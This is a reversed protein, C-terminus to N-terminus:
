DPYLSDNNWRDKIARKHTKFKNFLPKTIHTSVASMSPQMKLV